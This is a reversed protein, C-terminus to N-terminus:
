HKHDKAEELAYSGKSTGSDTEIEVWVKAGAPLPSPVKADADYTTTKKTATAKVSGAGDETGIWVRMAKPDTKADILKIDFEIAKGAEAEGVMIVSVTYDGIKQRGLKHKEDEGHKHAPEAAVASSTHSLTWLPAAAAVVAAILSARISFKRM